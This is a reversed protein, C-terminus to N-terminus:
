RLYGYAAARSIGLHAAVTVMARRMELLGASQLGQMLERREPARLSRPTTARGAAFADIHERLRDAARPALTEALPAESQLALFPALMAQFGQFVGLDVNLCLAAIYRGQSDKVGISTSKVPRGDAFTNAYNAIVAQVDADGIRALGLETAPHGVQRGSRNNHIALVAHAPDLLDHLVVECFPAFTRGLGEALLQLQALLHRQEPTRDPAQKPTRRPM